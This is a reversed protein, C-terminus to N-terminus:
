TKTLKSSIVQCVTDPHNTSFVFSKKGSLNIKVANGFSTSYAVSGDTGMRIGIGLYKGFNTKTQECSEIECLAFHTRNSFRYGVVLEESTIVIVIQGFNCYLLSIFVMPIVLVSAFYPAGIALSYRVVLLFICIWLITFAIYFTQLFKGAMVTEHYEVKDV